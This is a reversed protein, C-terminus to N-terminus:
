QIFGGMELTVNEATGGLTFHVGNIDTEVEQYQTGSFIKGSGEVWLAAEKQAPENGVFPITAITKLIGAPLAPDPQTYQMVSVTIFDVSVVTRGYTTTFIETNGDYKRCSHLYYIDAGKEIEGCEMAFRSELNMYVDAAYIGPIIAPASTPSPTETPLTPKPTVVRTATVTPVPQPDNSAGIAFGVCICAFLAVVPISLWKIIKKM